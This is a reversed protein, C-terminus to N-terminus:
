LRAPCGRRGALSAIRGPMALMPGPMPEEPGALAAGRCGTAGTAGGNRLGDLRFGVGRVGSATGPVPASCVASAAHSHRGPPDDAGDTGSQTSEISNRWSRLLLGQGFSQLGSALFWTRPSSFASPWPHLVFCDLPCHLLTGGAAPCHAAAHPGDAEVWGAVLLERRGAKKPGAPAEAAGCSRQARWRTKPRRPDTKKASDSIPHELAQLDKEMAHINTLMVKRLPEQSAESARHRALPARPRAPLWRGLRVAM